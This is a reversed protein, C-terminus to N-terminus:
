CRGTEELLAPALRALRRDDCRGDRRVVIGGAARDRDARAEAAPAPPPLLVRVFAPAAPTAVVPASSPAVIGALRRWWLYFTAVALERQRCYAGISLGSGPQGAVHERWFAERRRNAEDRRQRRQEM